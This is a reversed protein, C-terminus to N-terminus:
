RITLAYYDSTYLLFCYFYPKSTDIQRSDIERTLHFWELTIIDETLMDKSKEKRPERKTTKLENAKNKKIEANVSREKHLDLKKQKQKKLIKSGDKLLFM